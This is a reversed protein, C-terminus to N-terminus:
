HRASRRRPAVVITLEESVASGCDNHVRANVRHVGPTLGTLVLTSGAGQLRQGGDYWEVRIRPSGSTM